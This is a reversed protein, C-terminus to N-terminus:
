HLYIKPVFLDLHIFRVHNKREVKAAGKTSLTALKDGDDRADEKNSFSTMTLTMSTALMDINVHSCNCSNAAGLSM